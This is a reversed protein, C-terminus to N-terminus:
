LKLKEFAYDADPGNDSFKPAVCKWGLGEIFPLTEDVKPAGRNYDVCQMEVILHDANELCRAAGALIDKEAGQVDIKILDPLPFGRERVVTDLTKMAMEVYRDEPFVQDNNEKYYSNGCPLWDNQYFRVMRGDENGLVVIAYDLGSERYLVEACTYADFMVIRAEPWLRQAVLTWHMVCAGIDYIVRPQYGSRKLDELYKVHSAPIGFQKQLNHVHADMEM